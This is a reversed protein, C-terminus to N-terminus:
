EKLRVIAQSAKWIATVPICVGTNDKAAHADTAVSPKRYENGGILSKRAQDFLTYRKARVKPKGSRHRVRKLPYKADNIAYLCCFAAARTCSM